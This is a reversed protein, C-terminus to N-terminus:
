ENSGRFDIWGLTAIELTRGADDAAAQIQKSTNTLIYATGMAQAAAEDGRGAGLPAAAVAATEDNVDPTNFYVTADGAARYCSFNFIAVVRVDPPVSLTHLATTGSITASNIDLPPDDWLFRDQLHKFGIINATGNTLVSGVRRYASYGVPINAATPSTDFGADITGDSDKEILFCHYWTNNGVAGSFLGGADDGAAWVADIQKAMGTTLVLMKAHTSDLAVGVAFQIDHDTDTDNSLHLGSIYGRLNSLSPVGISARLTAGSEAVPDTTGDGVIMEGDALVAMATIAGTGSGLLVGGDTLTSVGTGGDAVPVDTGGARYIINGEINVDGASARALTTDTAHGLEIGTFQPSDGTGVGISTRLTAGSEAVPDTTGDGVIMEGDALVAMATIAGTGSGLLVGGDTLTSVGTGGNSVALPLSADSTTHINMLQFNSGDYRLVAPAATTIDGAALATGGRRVINKVGLSDVNITAAGTNTALPTFVVEMGETYATATTAMTVLYADAAGTDTVYNARSEALIAASPLTAFAAEIAAFETNIAAARALTHATQDTATYYAM